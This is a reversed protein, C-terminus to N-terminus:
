PTFVEPSARVDDILRGDSLRVLRDCRAALAPDHTVLVLTTGHRRCLSFLLGIVLDGSQADLNGTPEDALVLPPQGILARALAVRQQEGGSLEAPFHGSRAALGVEALAAHARKLVDAAGALELPLAVNELATMTPVLHFSQFVIGIHSRRFRALADEDLQGLDVGAIKVQGASAAELGAIVMLLSSKGSGSPGLLAVAEGPAIHLNVDHLINVPGAASSLTLAINALEIM